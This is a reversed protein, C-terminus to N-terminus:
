AVEKLLRNQLTAPSVPFEVNDNIWKESMGFAEAMTLGESKQMYGIEETIDIRGPRILAADLKEAHNSTVILIRNDRAGVGDIANLLGSLTIKEAPAVGPTNDNVPKSTREHTIDNADIDEILVIAGAEILNFAATIGTDGGATNLNIIYLPRKLHSAIAFAITTKGTGAPGKFLYGRKYPIGRKVYSEKNEVFKNVDNIIRSKQAEPLYVTNLPRLPKRDAMLYSGKHWIYVRISPCKKYVDEARKILARIATQDRGLVRITLTERRQLTMGGKDAAETQRHLLFRTGHDKFIHWGSGFTPRWEWKQSERNYFEVMRLWRTKNVYSLETLYVMLREFIEESNDVEIYTTLQRKGFNWLQLPVARAQYFLASVGAGGVVGAFVPNNVLQEIIGSM